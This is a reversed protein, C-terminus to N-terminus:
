FSWVAYVLPGQFELDWVQKRGSSKDIDLDLDLIQYGVGFGVHDFPQWELNIRASVFKGDYDDIELAFYGVDGELMINDTLAFRGSSMINPLPALADESTSGVPTIVNGVQVKGAIGFDLDVLHLGLGIDINGRDRDIITYGANIIYIDAALDTDIRAGIPFELDGFEVTTGIQRSGSKDFSTYVGQVYWRETFHWKATIWPVYQKDDLGLKQLDVGRPRGLPGTTAISADVDHQMVGAKLSFSRELIDYEALASTPLLLSVALVSAFGLTTRLPFTSGSM